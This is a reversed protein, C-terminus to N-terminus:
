MAQCTVIRARVKVEHRSTMIIDIHDKQWVAKQDPKSFEASCTATDGELVEQNQLPKLFHEADRYSVVLDM